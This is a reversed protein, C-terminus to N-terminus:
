NTVGPAFIFHFQLSQGHKRVKAKGSNTLGHKAMQYHLSAEWVKLRANKCYKDANLKKPPATGCFTPILVSSIDTNKERVVADKLDYMTAVKPSKGTCIKRPAHLPTSNTVEREQRLAKSGDKKTCNIELKEMPKARATCAGVRLVGYESSSNDKTASVRFRFSKTKKTPYMEHVAKCKRSPKVTKHGANLQLRSQIHSRINNSTVKDCYYRMYDSCREFHYFKLSSHPSKPRNVEGDHSRILTDSKARTELLAKRFLKTTFPETASSSRGFEPSLQRSETKIGWTSSRTRRLYLRQHDQLTPCAQWPKLARTSKQNEEDNVSFLRYMLSGLSTEMEEEEPGSTETGHNHRRFMASRGYNYDLRRLEETARIEHRVKCSCPLDYMGVTTEHFAM